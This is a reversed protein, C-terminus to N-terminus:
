VGFRGRLANFNQKAEEPTLARNYFSTIPIDGEWNTVTSGGATEAGIYIEAPTSPNYATRTGLFVEGDIVTYLTTGDFIQGVMHYNTDGVWDITVDRYETEAHVRFVRATMWWGPSWVPGPGVLPTVRSGSSTTDPLPVASRLWQFVSYPQLSDIPNAFSSHNTIGDFSFSGDTKYDLSVNTVINNGTLDLLSETDLRVGNKYPSAFAGEEMQPFASLWKGYGADRFYQPSLTITGFGNDPVTFTTSVRSWEGTSVTPYIVSGISAGVTPSYLNGGFGSCDINKIYFSLTYTINETLTYNGITATRNSDGGTLAESQKIDGYKGDPLQGTVDTMAVLSGGGFVYGAALNTMPKGKWSKETNAMDYYLVLGDEVIRAGSHCSM